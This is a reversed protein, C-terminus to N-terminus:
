VATYTSQFALRTEVAVLDGAEDYLIYDGVEATGADVAFMKTEATNPESAYAIEKGNEDTYRVPKGDEGEDGVKFSSIQSALVYTPYTQYKAM